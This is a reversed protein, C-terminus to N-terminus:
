VELMLQSHFYKEPNGLYKPFPFFGRAYLKSPWDKERKYNQLIGGPHHLVCVCM